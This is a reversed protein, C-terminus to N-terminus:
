QACRSNLRVSCAHLSECRMQDFHRVMVGIFVNRFIFAGVWVWAIFFIVTQWVGCLQACVCTNGLGVAAVPLATINVQRVDQEILYWNDLTLLQWLTMLVSPFDKFRRQYLLLGDANNHQIYPEFLNMALVGFIYFLLAQM